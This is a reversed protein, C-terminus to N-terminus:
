PVTRAPKGAGIKVLGLVAGALVYAAFQYGINIEMVRVPMAMYLYDLSQTTLDFVFWAAVSAGISAALTTAGLRQTLWALGLVVVLTNVVGLSQMIAVNSNNPPEGAATMADAWARQFWIGYWLYGLVELLVVAVVIAVWSAGKLM